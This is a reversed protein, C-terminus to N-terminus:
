GRAWAPTRYKLVITSTGAGFPNEEGILVDVDRSLRSEVEALIQDLHDMAKTVSLMLEEDRFEPHRLLYSIGALHLQDDDASMFVTGRTLNSLSQAFSRYNREEEPQESLSRHLEVLERGPEASTGPKGPAPAVVENVFCRYGAETPVRGASTHPQMLLGQEELWAMDNRVTAPSVGFDYKQVIAKSGVPEASDVFERVVAWLIQKRRNDADTTQM